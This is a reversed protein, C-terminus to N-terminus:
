RTWKLPLRALAVQWYPTAFRILASVWERVTDKKKETFTGIMLITVITATIVSLYFWPKNPDGNFIAAFLLILPNHLLYLSFTYGALFRIANAPPNLVPAFRHSIARFGAFNAVVLLALQYDAIFFKSFTLQTHWWPGIMDKLIDSCFQTLDHAHFLVILMTSGLFMAWGQVESLQALRKSRFLWVGMFWLPALLVIKPGLLLPIAILLFLRWRGQMFTLVAFYVYYWMEYCLSWYPVNSFAMISVTWIENLFAMSTVLRLWWLDHTTSNKYFGPTIPEGISDALLTVLLAPIAVSYIRALRNTWYIELTNEKTASVYAIVFGSLVFFVIVASHGYSSWPLSATSISRLNSHYILVLCAAVFRVVDLYLSFERRM